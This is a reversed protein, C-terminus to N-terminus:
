PLGPMGADIWRVMRRRDDCSPMPNGPPMFNDVGVANRIFSSYMRVAAPVDWDYGPPAGNRAGGTLTSSHCSTCWMAFFPQAFSTWTDGGIPDGPQALPDNWSPCGNVSPFLDPPAPALDPASAGNGQGCGVAALVVVLAPRAVLFTARM